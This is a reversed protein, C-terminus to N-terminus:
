ANEAHGELREIMPDAFQLFQTLDAVSIDQWVAALADQRAARIRDMRRRGAATLTYRRQRADSRDTTARVLGADQLQRLTRSVAAASCDRARAFMSPLFHETAIEELARWQTETLDAAAALQQRRLAFLDTLRTLRDIAAHTLEDQQSM